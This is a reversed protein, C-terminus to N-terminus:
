PYSCMVGDQSCSLSNFRQGMVREEFLLLEVDSGDADMMYLGLQGGEESTFVIKGNTEDSQAFINFTFLIYALFIVYIVNKM